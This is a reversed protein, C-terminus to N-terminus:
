SVEYIKWTVICNQVRTVNEAHFNLMLRLSQNGAWRTLPLVDVTWGWYTNDTADRRYVTGTMGATAVYTRRSGSWATIPIPSSWVLHRNYPGAMIRFTNVLSPNGNDPAIMDGINVVGSAVEIQRRIIVNNFEATGSKQIRWGAGNEGTIFNTSQIVNGIKANDIDGERIVAKDLYAMGNQVIFPVTRPSDPSVDNVIAFRNAVINVSNRDDTGAEIFMAAYQSNDNDANADARLVIRTRATNGAATSFIRFLGQASVKGVQASTQTVSNSISTIQGDVTDVRAILANLASSNAKQAMQGNLTATVQNIAASIANDTQAKTYRAAINTANASVRGDLSNLTSEMTSVYSAFALDATAQTQKVEAIAASALADYGTQRELIIGTIYVANGTGATPGKAIILRAERALEPPRFEASTLKQWGGVTGVISPGDSLYQGAADFFQVWIRGTPANPQQFIFAGLVLVDSSSVDYRGTFFSLSGDDAPLIRLARPGPMAHYIPHAHAANRVVFRAENLDLGQWHRFKDRFEPDRVLQSRAYTAEIRENVQAISGEATALTTEIQGISAQQDAFGSEVSSVRNGIAQDANTRSTREEILAADAAGFRTDVQTKYNALAQQDTVRTAELDTIRAEIAINVTSAEIKTILARTGSQTKTIKLDAGVANDPPDVQLSYIRWQNAPSVTVNQTTPTDVVDGNVDRWLFEFALTRTATTSAASFRIQLRDDGTVTFANLSQGISGTSGVGIGVMADEPCSLMLADTQGAKGYRVSSVLAWSSTSTAFSGNSVLNDSTLAATLQEIQGAVAEFQGQVVMDQAAIATEVYGRSSVLGASIQAELAAVDGALDTRVTQVIGDVRTTEAALDTRLADLEADTQGSWALLDDVDRLIEQAIDDRGLLVAHTTLVRWGTWATPRDAILRARVEYATAPLIGDSVTTGRAELALTSGQLVVTAQGALRIEWKIGRALIDGDWVIRIAARRAAGNAGTLIIPEADFGSVAEPMPPTTGPITPVTPLEFGASWSYDNPDRERISLQRIGTRPDEVIEHVSFDKGAYGNRPSTWDITDILEIHAADPPLAISHIRFRRADEIWARTLRQVQYKYPVAPLSLSSMRRGFADAAEWDANTRRPAEKTEYLEDPDPYRATVANYTEEIAPFPDLEQSKSVIVDDDSFAYVPLAPAGVVIGWGYGLDAVTASCAKFLEELAAAPPQDLTVELGARYAPESHGSSLTVQADCRNMANTWIAWPLESTDKINGGWVEGGPLPIGRMVNWAIVAANDTHEWTDPDNLRHSGVGGASGDKRPDYLPIGDLEFRYRPVQNLEESHFGFTLIAYCIGTGIMEAIWPRDPHGGYRARLMPDAVTQTGDYYKIWINGDIEHGGLVPLGYEPHPTDGLPIWEDGIMIRNLRAGPASCLEVIHTLFVNSKGHTYPPAIAHGATAYRGLILTEPQHEGTVTTSITLGGGQSPTPALAATLASIAVTTLLKTAIGGVITSAFGAGAVWGGFAAGGAAGFAAGAGFSFMGAVFGAVPAM